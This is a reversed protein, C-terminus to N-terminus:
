VESSVCVCKGKGGCIGGMDSTLWRRHLGIAGVPHESIHSAVYYARIGSSKVVM